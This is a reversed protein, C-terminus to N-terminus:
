IKATPITNKSLSIYLIRYASSTKVMIGCFHGCKKFMKTAFNTAFYKLIKQQPLIMKKACDNKTALDNKQPLILKKTIFNNKQPLKKTTAFYFFNVNQWLM